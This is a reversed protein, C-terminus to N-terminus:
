GGKNGVISGIKFGNPVGGSALSRNILHAIPSALVEIGKNLV